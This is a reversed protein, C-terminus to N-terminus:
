SLRVSSLATPALEVHSVGPNAFTELGAYRDGPQGFAVFDTSRPGTEVAGVTARGQRRNM